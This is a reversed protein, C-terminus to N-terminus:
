NRGFKFHLYLTATAVVLHGIATVLLLEENLM